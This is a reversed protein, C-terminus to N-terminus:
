RLRRRRDPSDGALQQAAHARRVGLICWLAQLTVLGALLFPASVGLHMYTPGSAFPALVRALSTGSQYTGMVAGRNHAQAEGSALASGSPGFLGVGLGCAMLGVIVLPLAGGFALSIVGAALVVIGGIALRTEGFRPALIRMLGGQMAVAVIALAFLAMGVTRPGVHYRDMAWIAFISELTSQSFTVLLTALTLWRLAPLMRLLQWAHVRRTGRPHAGRHQATNSEPLLFLVLLMALVSLSASALAPRLFSVTQVHEGALAGGIAPGLMFGIGIAAGVTGMTAARDAPQSIDSAYAMAAALNGAMAGALARALFLAAISHAFALMVYSACAGLMSTLLIPRRGCRDSLRGWLPAALLQSASYIGLIWTNLTPTAGFQVAMYPILPILIGFGLVDIVCVIFLALLPKLRRGTM